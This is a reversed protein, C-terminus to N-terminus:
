NTRTQGMMVQGVTAPAVADVMREVTVADSSAEQGTKDGPAAAGRNTFWVFLLPVILIAILYFRKRNM